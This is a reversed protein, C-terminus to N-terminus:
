EWWLHQTLAKVFENRCTECANALVVKNTLNMQLAFEGLNGCTEEDEDATGMRFAFNCKDTLTVEPTWDRVVVSLYDNDSIDDVLGQWDLPLVDESMYPLKDGSIRFEIRPM